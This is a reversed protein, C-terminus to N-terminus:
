IEPFRDGYYSVRKLERFLAEWTGGAIADPDRYKAKRALSEPVKPYAQRVAEVDGFFWSELEEVVIRNVVHFGVGPAAAGKTILGAATAADDLQRKLVVCDDRDEDILVVVRLNEHPVRYANGRLRDSLRRLMQRKGQFSIIKHTARGALVRPLLSRLAEEMSREECLVDIQM